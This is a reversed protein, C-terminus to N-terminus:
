KIYIPGNVDYSPYSGLQHLKNTIDEERAQHQDAIEPTLAKRDMAALFSLHNELLDRRLQRIESEKADM